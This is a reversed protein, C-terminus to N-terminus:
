RLKLELLEAPSPSVWSLDDLHAECVPLLTGDLHDQHVGRAHPLGTHFCTPRNPLYLEAAAFPLRLEDWHRGCYAEVSGRNSDVVISAVNDCGIASCCWHAREETTVDTTRKASGM